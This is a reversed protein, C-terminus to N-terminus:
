EQRPRRETKPAGITMSSTLTKGRLDAWVKLNSVGDPISYEVELGQENCLGDLVRNLFVTPDDREARNLKVSVPPAATRHAAPGLGPDGPDM